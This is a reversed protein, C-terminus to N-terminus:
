APVDESEQLFRVLGGWRRDVHFGRRECFRRMVFNTRVVAIGRGECRTCFDELLATGIGRNSLPARVVFGDMHVVGPRNARWILAGVVREDEDLALLFRDAESVPRAYHDRYFLRYM